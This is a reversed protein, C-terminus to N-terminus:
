RESGTDSPETFKAGPLDISSFFRAADDQNPGPTNALMMIHYLHGGTFVLLSEGAMQQGESEFTYRIHHAPMGKVTTSQKTALVAKMNKVIGDESGNLIREADERTGLSEPFASDAAIFATNGVESSFTYLTSDKSKKVSDKVKGPLLVTFTGTKSKVTRWKEQPIPGQAFAQAACIVFLLM